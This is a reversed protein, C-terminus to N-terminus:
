IRAPFLFLVVGGVWPLNPPNLTPRSYPIIRANVIFHKQFLINL